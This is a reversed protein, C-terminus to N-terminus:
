AELHSVNKQNVQNDVVVPAGAPRLPLLLGAHCEVDLKGVRAVMRAFPRDRELENQM